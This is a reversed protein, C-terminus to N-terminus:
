ATGADWDGPTHFYDSEEASAYVSELLMKMRREATSVEKWEEESGHPQHAYLWFHIAGALIGEALEWMDEELNSEALENALDVVEDAAHDFFTDDNTTM